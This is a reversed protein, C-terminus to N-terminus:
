IGLRTEAPVRATGLVHTRVAESGRLLYDQFDGQIRALPTM